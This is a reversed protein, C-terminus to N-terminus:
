AYAAARSTIRRYGRELLQQQADPGHGRQVANARTTEDRSARDCGRPCQKSINSIHSHLDSDGEQWLYAERVICGLSLQHHWSHLLQTPCHLHTSHVLQTDASWARRNLDHDDTVTDSNQLLWCQCQMVCFAQRTRTCIDSATAKKKDSLPEQAIAHREM